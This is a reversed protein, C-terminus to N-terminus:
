ASVAGLILDVVAAADERDFEGMAVGNRKALLRAAGEVLDNREAEAATMVSGVDGLLGRLESM